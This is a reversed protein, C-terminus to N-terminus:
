SSASHPGRVSGGSGRWAPSKRDRLFLMRSTSCNPLAGTMQFLQSFLPPTPLPPAGARAICFAHKSGAAAICCIGSEPSHGTPPRRAEGQAPVLKQSSSRRYRCHTGLCTRARGQFPKCRPNPHPTDQAHLCLQQSHYLTCSNNGGRGQGHLRSPSSGGVTSANSSCASRHPPGCHRDQPPPAPVPGQWSTRGGAAKRM